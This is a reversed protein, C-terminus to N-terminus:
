CAGMASTLSAWELRRAGAKRIPSRRWSTPERWAQLARPGMRYQM